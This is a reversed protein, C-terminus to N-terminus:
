ANAKVRNKKESAIDTVGYEFATKENSRLEHVRINDAVLNYVNLPSMDANFGGM